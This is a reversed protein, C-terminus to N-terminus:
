RAITWSPVKNGYWSLDRGAREPKPRLQQDGRIRAWVAGWPRMRHKRLSGAPSPEDGADGAAVCAPLAAAFVLAGAVAEVAGAVEGVSLAGVAEEFEFPVGVLAQDGAVAPAGVALAEGGAVGVVRQAPAEPLFGGSRVGSEAPVAIRQREVCGVPCRPFEDM